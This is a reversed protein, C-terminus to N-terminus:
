VISGEYNRYEVTSEGQGLYLVRFDLDRRFISYATSM